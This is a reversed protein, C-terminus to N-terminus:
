KSSSTSVTQLLRRSSRTRSQRSDMVYQGVAKFVM